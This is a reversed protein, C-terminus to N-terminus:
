TLVVGTSAICTSFFSRRLSSLAAIVEGHKVGRFPTGRSELRRNSCAHSSRPYHQTECSRVRERRSFLSLCFILVPLIVCSVHVLRFAFFFAHSARYLHSDLPQIEHSPITVCCGQWQRLFFPLFHLAADVAAPSRRRFWWQVGTCCRDSIPFAVTAM